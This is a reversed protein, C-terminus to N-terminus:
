NSFLSSCFNTICERQDSSFLKHCVGKSWSNTICLHVLTWSATFVFIKFTYSKTLTILSLSNKKTTYIYSVRLMQLLFYVHRMLGVIDIVM